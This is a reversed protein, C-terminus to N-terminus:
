ARPISFAFTAGPGENPEAWMRGRHREIISRSVSLGIGMGGQKTTFFADFLKDVAQPDLGVGVDRVTVRVDTTGEPATSVRLQRPRDDVESMAESANRLLNLIVQQLQVRDGVILPLPETLELQLAVRNRQLDGLSLAAVERTAENLDVSEPASERGGFMARLRTIVDSARNGDRITRKVTERAGDVNPPSADLMRLCTSANTIMGSLPQSVEHAISATLTSLTMVRSVRALESRAKDTAEEARKRDDIDSLLVYWRVIVSNSDRLPLGRVRLWRYLGDFRRIRTEFEYPVGTAIAHTFIPLIHPLDEQHVTGNSGWAKMGELSQGCFEVLEHNVADVEGSPKLMAVLGPITDLILLSERERERLAQEARRRETLDIVFAVGEDGVGEFMTAGTLVSVRTGDKRLLEREESRQKGGQRLDELLRLDAERREPLTFDTWHLRGAVLDERCRGIIRLFEDNADFVRGDSHWICIGIINADILRRVRAQREQVDRYLRANEISIAAESALLKLLAMRAPTFVGPTLSNELYLVGVMRTQKLLPMCLMSRPHRHRFYPDGSFANVASADQLLIADRTRVVYHLASEPLDEATISSVRLVVSVAETGIGAEAEIRYDGQSPLILLGREAGAHELGLRMVTTILRESDFEGSVADLVALVAALDLQEVPAEMTHMCDPPLHEDVLDPHLQDLQRVKGDAGWQLYGHRADWLYTKAIRDFGRAAYFRAARELALAENHTFGNERASRIAQEYLRMADSDRVEVRAIEAGVLAVCHDFNEPCHRAWSALQRLHVAMAELHELREDTSACDCLSARTLASYLEHEVRELAGPSELRLRHARTPADLAATYDEALFHAQLKRTWYWFECALLHPESDYRRQVLLEGFREDDLSGFRRTLGRLNRVYAATVSARDTFASFAARRCYALSAEAEEAVEILPEGAFLLNVVLENRSSAASLRDGTKDAVAFTTRLLERCSAIHRAWPMIPGALLGVYGEFKRLDKREVLEYGLRGFRFGAEFDGFQWGAINGLFEYAFCSSDCHGRELGLDIAACIILTVLHRHMVLASPAIKALVDMVARSTPDTMQPREALEDIGLGELRSCIGEYAERAQAETPDTPIDLGAHRLCGLCEALARDPREFAFYLDALLCTVAAREVVNAVRFTLTRLHGEASAMEGTLFESEARDLELAFTLDHRREWSDDPLLAIGAKFYNLASPWAAAARARRGAALDLEALQEREERSSILAAGRNLHGVIDFVAEEQKDENGLHAALRRGIRLHMQPRLEDPILSYVAERVRDHVFRYSDQSPVILELRLAEWLDSRVEPESKGRCISLTSAEAAYGLCALAKLAELSPPSLRSLQGVILDIVNDTYGKARIPKLDWSWMANGSDFTILREEALARIFQTAFLPNGATKEHVLQALPLVRDLDCRLADAILQGLDARKLPALVIQQVNAGSDRIASFMRTLPHAVDVDDDRYAGVLLLHQVAGQVLLDTLLELTAPDLWQMDDLFLALPHQPRALAGIFRQLAVQIRIKAVHAPVDPVNPQEGIIFRLEPVLEVVLAGNPGLAQQLDNRWTSLETESTSLLHRIAREFAQALAAYPIDRKLPESKGWAFLGRPSLGKRLEDVVSSKGIGPPGSILVLSPKGTAVVNEFAALLADIERDRGYLREPILLRDPLDREALPFEDVVGTAQWDALCRQLDREVSAATQYREEPTKALLKMIIASVQRPVDKVRASPPLAKRAVHCHVWELADAAAFPLGGTLAQYFSVGLSYLDSRSDISRNTRGTQEPAMHSLTGAISEPPEASQKERPLRSAVGFGMLWVREGARDVLINAPKIDRHILGSAHMRTVASATAIAVRLFDGVMMPGAIMRELPQGDHYELVLMTAGRNRVIEVPRVAWAGDLHDRLGHEHALRHLSGPSPSDTALLVALFEHREGDGSDRWIKCFRREGDEWLVEPPVDTGVSDIWSSRNM